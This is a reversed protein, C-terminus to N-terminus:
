QNIVNVTVGKKASMGQKSERMNLGGHKSFMEQFVNQYQEKLLTKNHKGNPNRPIELCFDIHHPTMYNPLHLGCFRKISLLLDSTQVDPKVTILTVIGQGLQKHPVGFAVIDAVSNHKCIVSEIENPSVRYGSTKIMDDNRGVFYIFGEEDKTVIDGSWVALQESPVENLRNPTAKFRRETMERNGWYGQAVLPGAHVLEGQEHPECEEGNVNIIFIKANPIAKGISTPRKLAQEPPLFCSRFSETLGYMLFPKVNPMQKLLKKLIDELLAGGSNTIYRLNQSAAKPWELNALQNWATPVLALGTISQQQVVKILEKAFLYEFLYCSGGSLFSVTLQSFGYDFSIPLALLLRDSSSNDLYQAVSQAGLILNRQTLTVGKAPGSSGSTYFIAATDSELIDPLSPNRLSLTHLQFWSLVSSSSPYENSDDTLVIDKISKPLVSKLTEYRSKNTILITASCDSLIHGVQLPKLIPNIPVFIGGAASTAFISIVSEFCKPLFVAVRESKNLGLSLFSRALTEIEENLHTYTLWRNKEGIAPCYPRIQAQVKVLQHITQIM